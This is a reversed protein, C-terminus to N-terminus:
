YPAKGDLVKESYGAYDGAAIAARIGAVGGGIILLDTFHHPTRKPHFAAVYRPVPTM